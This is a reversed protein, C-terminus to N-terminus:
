VHPGTLSTCNFFDGAKEFVMTYFGADVSTFIQYDSDWQFGPLSTRVNSPLHLTTLAPIEFSIVWKILNDSNDLSLEDGGTIINQLNFYAVAAGAADLETDGVLNNVDSYNIGGLGLLTSIFNAYELQTCKRWKGTNEDMFAVLNSPVPTGFPIHSEIILSPLGQPM